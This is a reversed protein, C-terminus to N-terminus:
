QPPTPPQNFLSLSNRIRKAMSSKDFAILKRIHAAESSSIKFERDGGKMEYVYECRSCMAKRKGMEMNKLETLSFIEYYGCDCKVSRRRKGGGYDRKDIAGLVTLRKLRIPKEYKLAMKHPGDSRHEPPNYGVIGQEGKFMGIAATKNIPKCDSARETASPRSM